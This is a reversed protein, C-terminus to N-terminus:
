YYNLYKQPVHLLVLFVWKQVVVLVEQQSVIFHFIIKVHVLVKLTNLFVILLYVFVLDVLRKDLLLSCNQACHHVEDFHRCSYMFEVDFLNKHGLPLLLHHLHEGASDLLVDVAHM